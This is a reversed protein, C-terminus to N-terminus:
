GRLRSVLPRKAVAAGADARTGLAGNVGVAAASWSGQQQAPLGENYIALPQKDRPVASLTASLQRSLSM